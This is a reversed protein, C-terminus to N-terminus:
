TWHTPKRRPKTSTLSDFVCGCANDSVDPDHVLLTVCVVFFIAMVDSLTSVECATLGDMLTANPEARPRVRSSATETSPESAYEFLHEM